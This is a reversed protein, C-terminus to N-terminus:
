PHEASVYQDTFSRFLVLQSPSSVTGKIIYSHLAYEMDLMQKNYIMSDGPVPAGTTFMQGRGTDLVPFCLRSVPDIALYSSALQLILVPM